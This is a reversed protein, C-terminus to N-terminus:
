PTPYLTQPNLVQPEPHPHAAHAQGCLPLRFLAGLLRPARTSPQAPRSQAPRPRACLACAAGVVGEMIRAVPPRRAGKSAAWATHAQRCSLGPALQAAAAQAPCAAGVGRDQRLMM